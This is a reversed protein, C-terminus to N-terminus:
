VFVAIRRAQQDCPWVCSNEVGRECLPWQQRKLILKDRCPVEHTLHFAKTHRACNVCASPKLIIRVVIAHDGFQMGAILHSHPNGIVEECLAWLMFQVVELPPCAVCCKVLTVASKTEIAGAFHKDKRRCVEFVKKFRPWVQVSHQFAFEICHNAM